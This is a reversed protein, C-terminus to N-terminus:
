IIIVEEVLKVGKQEFVRKKIETILGFIDASTAGGKNLIFNAHQTSVEAGGIRLGKCGCEEIIRGASLEPSPNKFVSGASPFTYPQKDKRAVLDADVLALIETKNKKVLEFVVEWIIYNGTERKFLSDRYSFDVDRKSLVEENWNGDTKHLVRVWKLFDKTETGFAGANGRVLGGITGPIGALHEIGGLNKEAAKLVALRAIAGAEVILERRNLSINRGEIKIILGNYGADPFLVNSGGGLVFFALKKEQVWALAEQLDEFTAVRTLFRAQGGVHWTCFKSLNVNEEINIM